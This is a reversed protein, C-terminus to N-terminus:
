RSHWIALYETCFFTVALMIHCNCVVYFLSSHVRVPFNYMNCKAGISGRTPWKSYVGTPMVKAQGIIPLWFFQFHMIYQVTPLPPSLWQWVQVPVACKTFNPCIPKSIDLGASMCVCENCYKAGSSSVFCVYYNFALTPLDVNHSHSTLLCYRYCSHLIHTHSCYACDNEISNLAALDLHTM